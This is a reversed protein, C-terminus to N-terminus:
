LIESLEAIADCLAASADHKLGRALADRMKSMRRTRLWPHHQSFRSSNEPIERNGFAGPRFLLTMQLPDGTLRDEGKYGKSPMMMMAMMMVVMTLVTSIMVLM